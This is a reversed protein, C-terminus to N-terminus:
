THWTYTKQTIAHLPTSSPPSKCGVGLCSSGPFCCGGGQAGPCSLYGQQCTGVEQSCTQGQSCCGVDGNGTDTVLQCVEDSPCCSNPRNISTCANTNAPCSYQRKQFPFLRRLLPLNPQGTHLSFPAQLPPLVTANDSLPDLAEFDSLRLIPQRKDLAPKRLINSDRRSNTEFTWYEPFFMEGEDSSMKRLGIPQHASRLSGPGDAIRRQVELDQALSRRVSKARNIWPLDYTSAPVLISAIVVLLSASLLM